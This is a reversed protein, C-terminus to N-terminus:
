ESFLDYWVSRVFNWKYIEFHRYYFSLHIIISLTVSALVSVMPHPRTILTFVVRSGRSSWGFEASFVAARTIAGCSFVQFWTIAKDTVMTELPTIRTPVSNNWSRLLSNFPHSQSTLSFKVSIFSAFKNWTSFIILSRLFWPQKM